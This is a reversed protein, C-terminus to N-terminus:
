QNSHVDGGSTRIWAPASTPTPTPTITPTPTPTSTPTPTPTPASCTFSPGSTPSSCGATNCAHLWWGYTNGQLSTFNRSTGSVNACFDGAPSSCSGDWGDAQNNVRLAYYSAGSTASWSLYGTTSPAPCSGSLGSPPSPACDSPCSGATEGCACVGNGCYQLTATYNSSGSNTVRQSPGVQTTSCDNITCGSSNLQWGAGLTNGADKGNINTNLSFDKGSSANWNNTFDLNNNGKCSLDSDNMAIRRSRTGSGLEKYGGISSDSNDWALHTMTVTCSGTTYTDTFPATQYCDGGGGCGGCQQCCGGCYWGAAGPDDNQCACSFWDGNGCEGYAPHTDLFAIDNLPGLDIPLTRPRITNTLSSPLSTLLFTGALFLILLSLRIVPKKYKATQHQASKKM